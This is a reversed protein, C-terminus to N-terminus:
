AVGPRPGPGDRLAGRSGDEVVLSDEADGKGALAGAPARTPQTLPHRNQAVGMEEALSVGGEELGPGLQELMSAADGLIQCLLNKMMSSFKKLCSPRAPLQEGQHFVVPAGEPEAQEGGGFRDFAESHLVHHAQPPNRRSRPRTWAPFRHSSCPRSKGLRIRLRRSWPMRTSAEPIRNRSCWVGLVDLIVDVEDDLQFRIHRLEHHERGHGHRRKVLLELGFSQEVQTAKRPTARGACSL